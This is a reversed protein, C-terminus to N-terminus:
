AAEDPLELTITAEIDGVAAAVAKRVEDLSPAANVRERLQAVKERLAKARATETKARAAEENALQALTARIDLVARLADGVSKGDQNIDENLQLDTDEEHFHYHVVLPKPRWHYDSGRSSLGDLGDIYQQMQDRAGWAADKDGMLVAHIHEEMDGHQEDRHWAAWGVSRLAHIVQSVTLGKSALDWVRFDLCGGEDHYGSSAAAGGGPVRSMYAGQTVTLEAKLRTNVDHLAAAMRRNMYIPRSSSDTGYRFVEYPDTM